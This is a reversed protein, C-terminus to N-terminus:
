FGEVLFPTCRTAISGRRIWLRIRSVTRGDIDVIKPLEEVFAIDKIHFDYYIPDCGQPDALLFIKEGDYPHKKPTGCFPLHNKKLMRIRDTDTFSVIELKPITELFHMISV